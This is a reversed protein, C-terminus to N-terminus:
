DSRGIALRLAERVSSVPVLTMGAVRLEAVSEHAPVLARQFGHRVAETLRRELQPVRRVEGNLGVEGLFVTRADLPADRFSSAIALATALDAAPEGVRLGGPVNVMIDQNGLSLGARRSLVAALMAMRNYDIGNSARRPPTFTSFNTLAQVEALLPRTGELAVTIASGPVGEQREGILAASPDAVDILGEQRMEMLAVDNTAGFRNKTCHLMRYANLGEGEMQVVVDVMHELVRPGAIGGEKTVHGALFVPANATKAWRLLLQACERVQAVSGAGSPALETSLTQISDVILAGPQVRALHDMLADASTEALFLVGRQALGLREARLRVQSGSEEGSVYLVRQGAATLNAAAQLLLTSKGIGPDGAILMVAGAVIGGGLLRDVEPMGIPIRRGVQSPQEDIPAVSAAPAAQMAIGLRGGGAAGPSRSAAHGPRATPEHFEVYTNWAGCASCKGEWKPSAHGCEQCLFSVKAQKRQKSASLPSM